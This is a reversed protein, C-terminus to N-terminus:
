LQLHRPFFAALLRPGRKFFFHLGGCIKGMDEESKLAEAADHGM